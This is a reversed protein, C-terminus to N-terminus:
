CFGKVWMIPGPSNGAQAATPQGWPGLVSRDCPPLNPGMLSYRTLRQWYGCPSADWAHLKAAAIHGVSSGWYGEWNRTEAV